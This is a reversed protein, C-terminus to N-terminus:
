LSSFPCHNLKSSIPLCFALFQKFSKGHNGKDRERYIYINIPHSRMSEIQTIVFNIKKEKTNLLKREGRESVARLKYSKNPKYWIDVKSTNNNWLGDKDKGRVKIINM